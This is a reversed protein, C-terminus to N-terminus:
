VRVSIFDKRINGSFDNLGDKIISELYCKIADKVMEKAEKLNFGETVLGPLAPVTVTYGDGNPDFVVEYEFIKEKRVKM